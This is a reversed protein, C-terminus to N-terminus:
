RGCAPDTGDVVREIGRLMLDKDFKSPQSSGSFHVASSSVGHDDEKLLPEVRMVM